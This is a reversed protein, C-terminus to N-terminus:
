GPEREAAARYTRCRQDATQMLFPIVIAVM